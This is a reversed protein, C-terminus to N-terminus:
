SRSSRKRGAGPYPTVMVATGVTIDPDHRQPMSVYAYVGWVLTAVLATWAIPRRYVFFQATTMAPGGGPDRAGAPRRCLRWAGVVVIADGEAIETGPGTKVHIRNDYVGDLEVRCERVVTQEGQTVVKYVVFGPQTRGRQIATM